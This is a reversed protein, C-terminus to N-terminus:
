PNFHYGGDMFEAKIKYGTSGILLIKMPGPKTDWAMKYDINTANFLRGTGPKDGISRSILRRSNQVLVPKTVAAYATVSIDVMSYAFDGSDKGLLSRYLWRLPSQAADGHFSLSAVSEYINNGGQASLTVGFSMMGKANLKKGTMILGAGSVMQSAGGLIAAGVKAYKIIGQDEFLETVLYKQYNGQRLMQYERQAIEAEHELEHVLRARENVDFTMNFRTTINDIIAEIEKLYDLRIIKDKIFFTSALTAIRRLNSAHNNLSYRQHSYVPAGM